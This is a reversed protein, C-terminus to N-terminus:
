FLPGTGTCYYIQSYKYLATCSSFYFMLGKNLTSPKPWLPYTPRVGAVVKWKWSRALCWYNIMIDKGVSGDSVERNEIQYEQCASNITWFQSIKWKHKLCLIAWCDAKAKQDLAMHLVKNDKRLLIWFYSKMGKIHCLDIFLIAQMIGIQAFNPLCELSCSIQVPVSLQYKTRCRQPYQWKQKTPLGLPRGTTM